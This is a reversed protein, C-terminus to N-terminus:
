LLLASFARSLQSSPTEGHGVFEVSIARDHRSRPTTDPARDSKAQGLRTRIDCDDVDIELRTLRDRALCVLGGSLRDDGEPTARETNLGIQGILGRGRPDNRRDLIGPAAEVDHRVDRASRDRRIRPAVGAGNRKLVDPVV